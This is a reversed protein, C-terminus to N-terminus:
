GAGREETKRLVYRGFTELSAFLRDDFDEDAVQIGYTEEVACVLGFAEVSDLGIGRGLLPTSSELHQLHAPNVNLRTALIERVSAEISSLTVPRV